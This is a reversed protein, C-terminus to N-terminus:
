VLIGCWDRFSKKMGRRVTRASMNAMSAANRNEYQSRNWEGSVPTTGIVSPMGERPAYTIPESITM